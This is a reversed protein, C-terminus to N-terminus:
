RFHLQLITTTPTRHSTPLLLHQQPVSLRTLSRDQCAPERMVAGRPRSHRRITAHHKITLNHYRHKCPTNGVAKLFIFLTRRMMAPLRAAFSTFCAASAHPCPPIPCAEKPLRASTIGLHSITHTSVNFTPHTPASLSATPLM